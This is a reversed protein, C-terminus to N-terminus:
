AEGDKGLSGHETDALAVKGLHIRCLATPRWISNRYVNQKVKAIFKSYERGCRKANLGGCATWWCVNPHEFEPM